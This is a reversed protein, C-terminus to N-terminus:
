FHGAVTSLYVEQASYSTALDFAMVAEIFDAPPHYHHDRIYHYVLSPAAYHGRPSLAPIWIKSAGLEGAGSATTMPGDGCLPCPVHGRLRNVHVDVPVTSCILDELKILVQESVVGVSYPKDADLWGVNRVTEVPSKLYYQYPSLDPFYM